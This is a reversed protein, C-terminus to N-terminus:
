LSPQASTFRNLWVLPTVATVGVSRGLDTQLRQTISTKQLTKEHQCTAKQIKETPTPAKTMPSLWIEEKKGEFWIKGNEDIKPLRKFTYSNTSVDRCELALYQVVKWDVNLCIVYVLSRYVFAFNAKFILWAILSSLNTFTQIVYLVCIRENRDSSFFLM